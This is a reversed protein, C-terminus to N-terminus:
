PATKPLASKIQSLARVSVDPFVEIEKLEAVRRELDSATFEKEGGQIDESAPTFIAILQGDRNEIRFDTYAESEYFTGSM